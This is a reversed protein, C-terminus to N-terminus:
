WPDPRDPRRWRPLRTVNVRRQVIRGPSPTFDAPLWRTPDPENRRPSAATEHEIVERLAEVTDNTVFARRWWSACRTGRPSSGSDPRRRCTRTFSAGQRELLTASRSASARQAAARMPGSGCRAPAASSSGSRRWRWHTRGRLRRGSGATAARGLRRGEARSDRSGRAEYDSSARGALLRAGVRRRAADAGRAASDVPPSARKARCGIAHISMSGASCSHRSRQCTRRATDGRATCRARAAACAGASSRACWEPADCRTSVRWAGAQGARQWDELRAEIWRAPWGYRTEM